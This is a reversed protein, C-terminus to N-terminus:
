EMETGYIKSKGTGTIRSQVLKGNNGTILRRKTDRNGGIWHNQIVEGDLIVSGTASGDVVEVDYKIWRPFHRRTAMTFAKGQVEWSIATGSDSDKTSDEIQRIYGNSDAALMRSNTEDYAVASLELADTGSLYEYYSLRSDEISLVLVNSPYTKGASTYGFYIRNKFLMLWSNDLSSVGPVDNVTEGRFLRDVQNHTVKRDTIDWLYIGDSGVHYIGRGSVSIAGFPSQTGTRAEMAVGLFNGHSTGQIMHLDKSTIFYVQGGHYLLCKGPFQPRSVDVFYTAPWYEPQKAVCYHLKHNVIAFCTGNYNPGLLFNADSPIRDHDDPAISGLSSDLTLTGYLIPEWTFISVGFNSLSFTDTDAEWSYLYSVNGVEGSIFKNGTGSIYGFASEWDYTYGFDYESSMYPTSLTADLFYSTGDSTTRYVNVETIEAANPRDFSWGFWQDSATLYLSKPGISTEFVQTTGVSRAYTVGISYSGSLGVNETDSEPFGQKIVPTDTPADLGWEYVTSGEIRKRDTGNTAFVQETLDNFASYLFGFWQADTLSSAISSEDKYISSSAFSYRSGAQELVLHVPSDIATSNLACSGDRTEAVGARDLRLNKSRTFATSIVERGAGETQDLLDPEVDLNLSGSAKFILSM